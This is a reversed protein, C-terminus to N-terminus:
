LKVYFPEVLDCYMQTYAGDTGHIVLTREDTPALLAGVDSKVLECMVRRSPKCEKTKVVCMRAIHLKHLAALFVIRDRHEAATILALRGTTTLLAHANQFLSDLSLSDEHRATRRADDSAVVGNTFFPPNCIIADYRADCHSAYSAFDECRAVLRAPWPSAAFNQTAEDTAVDDVDVGLIQAKRFRQAMMMALLGTGCGVDLMRQPQWEGCCPWEVKKVVDCAVNSQPKLHPEITESARVDEDRFAWAGLLVGDTGVKMASQSNRVEFQKFRFTTERDPNRM